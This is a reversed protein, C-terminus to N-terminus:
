ACCNALRTGAPSRAAFSAAAAQAASGPPVAVPPSPLATSTEPAQATSAAHSRVVSVPLRPASSKSRNQRFSVAETGAAWSHFTGKEAASGTPVGLVRFVPAGPKPEARASATVSSRAAPM